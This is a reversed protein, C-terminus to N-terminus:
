CNENTKMLQEASKLQIEAPSAQLFLHVGGPNEHHLFECWAPSPAHSPIWIHDTM